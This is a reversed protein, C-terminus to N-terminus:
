SQGFYKLFRVGGVRSDETHGLVKLKAPVVVYLDTLVVQLGYLVDSLVIAPSDRLIVEYQEDSLGVHVGLEVGDVGLTVLM